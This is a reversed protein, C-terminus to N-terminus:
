LSEFASRLLDVRRENDSVKRADDFKYKIREWDLQQRNKPQMSHFSQCLAHLFLWDWRDLNPQPSLWSEITCDREVDLCIIIATHHDVYIACQDRLEQSFTGKRTAGKAGARLVHGNESRVAGLAALMYRQDVNGIRWCKLLATMIMAFAPSIFSIGYQEGTLLTTERPTSLNLLAFPMGTAALLSGLPTPPREEMEELAFEDDGIAPAEDDDNCDM